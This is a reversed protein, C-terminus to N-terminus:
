MACVYRTTIGPAYALDVDLLEPKFMEPAINNEDYVHHCDQWMTWVKDVFAHHLWFLPDDPSAFTNMAGGIFLHPRSHAGAEFAPRFSNVYKDKTM